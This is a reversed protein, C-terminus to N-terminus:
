LTEVGSVNDMPSFFFFLDKASHVLINFCGGVWPNLTVACGQVQFSGMCAM